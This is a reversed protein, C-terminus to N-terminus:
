RQKDHKRRTLSNVSLASAATRIQNTLLLGFLIIYPHDGFRVPALGDWVASAVVVDIAWTKNCYYIKEIQVCM